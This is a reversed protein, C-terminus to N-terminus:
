MAVVLHALEEWNEPFTRNGRDSLDVHNVYLEYLKGDRQDMTITIGFGNTTRIEIRGIYGRTGHLSPNQPTASDLYVTRCEGCDCKGVVRTASFDVDSWLEHAALIEHIWTRERASLEREPVPM